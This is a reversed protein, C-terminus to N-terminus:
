PYGWSKPFGWIHKILPNTKNPFNEGSVMTKVMLYLARRNSIEWWGIRRNKAFAVLFSAPFSSVNFKWLSILQFRSMDPCPMCNVVHQNKYLHLLFPDELTRLTCYSNSSNPTPPRRCHHLCQRCEAARSGGSSYVPKGKSLTTNKQFIAFACPPGWASKQNRDSEHCILCIRWPLDERSQQVSTGQSIHMWRGVDPEDKFTVHM